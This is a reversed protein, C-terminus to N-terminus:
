IFYLYIDADYFDLHRNPYPTLYHIDLSPYSRINVGRFSELSSYSCINDTGNVYELWGAICFLICPQV